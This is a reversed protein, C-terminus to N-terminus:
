ALLWDAERKMVPAACFMRAMLMAAWTLLCPLPSPPCSAAKTPGPCALPLALSPMRIFATHVAKAESTRKGDQM